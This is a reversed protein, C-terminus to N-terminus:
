TISFSFTLFRGGKMCLMILGHSVILVIEVLELKLRGIFIRLILIVKVFGNLKAKQKLFREEDLTAQTFASLYIAEEDRFFPPCLTKILLRKCKM